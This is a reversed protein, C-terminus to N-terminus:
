ILIQKVLILVIQIKLIKRIENNDRFTEPM